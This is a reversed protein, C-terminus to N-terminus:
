TPIDVTLVPINNGAILPSFYSCVEQGGFLFYSAGIGQLKSAKSRDQRLLTCPNLDANRQQGELSSVNSRTPPDRQDADSRVVDKGQAQDHRLPIIPLFVLRKVPLQLLFLSPRRTIFCPTVHFACAADLFTITLINIVPVAVRM